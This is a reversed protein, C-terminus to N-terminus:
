VLTIITRYAEIAVYINSSPAAINHEKSRLIEVKCPINEAMYTFKHPEDLVMKIKDFLTNKNNQPATYTIPKPRQQGFEAAPNTTSRAQFCIWPLSRLSHYGGLPIHQHNPVIAVIYKYDGGTLNEVPCKYISYGNVEHTKLMAAQAYMQSVADRLNQRPDFTTPAGPTEKLHATSMGSYTGFDKPKQELPSADYQYIHPSNVRGRIASSQAAGVQVNDFSSDKFTPITNNSAIYGFNIGNTHKLPQPMQMGYLPSGPNLHVPVSQQQQPMGSPGLVDEIVTHQSPIM